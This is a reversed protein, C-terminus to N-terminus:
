PQRMASWSISCWLSSTKPCFSMFVLWGSCLSYRIRFIVILLWLSFRPSCSVSVSTHFEALFNVVPSKCHKLYAVPALAQMFLIKDMYEPKESGMIWFVVTGQSHGIYHLQKFSTTDLIYDITKPIDYVGMEHFTFDWYKAQSHTYRVHKRSYTNGRVNAM